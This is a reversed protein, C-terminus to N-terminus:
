NSEFKWSVDILNQWDTTRNIDYCVSKIMESRQKGLMVPTLFTKIINNVISFFRTNFMPMKVTPLTNQKVEFRELHEDNSVRDNIKLLLDCM